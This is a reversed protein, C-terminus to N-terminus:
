IGVELLLGEVAGHAVTWKVVVDKQFEYFSRTSSTGDFVFTEVVLGQQVLM